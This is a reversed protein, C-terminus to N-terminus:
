NWLEGGLNGKKPQGQAYDLGCSTHAHFRQVRFGHVARNKANEEM